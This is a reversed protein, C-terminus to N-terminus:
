NSLGRLGKPSLCSVTLIVIIFAALLNQKKKECTSLCLCIGAQFVLCM